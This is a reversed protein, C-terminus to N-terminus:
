ALVTEIRVPFLSRFLEQELGFYGLLERVGAEPGSQVAFLAFLADDQRTLSLVAGRLEVPKGNAKVAPVSEAALFAEIKEDLGASFEPPIRIEYRFAQAASKHGTEPLIEARHFLLGEVSAGNLKALIEEPTLPADLVVEMVEDNGAYGLGLASVYSVKQKPHFGETMAVPLKARRLLREMLRLLDRHGIFRLSERKCFRLRVRQRVM